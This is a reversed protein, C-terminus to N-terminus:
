RACFLTTELSFGRAPPVSSQAGFDALNPGSVSRPSLRQLHTGPESTGGALGTLRLGSPCAVTSSLSPATLTAVGRKFQQIDGAVFQVACVSYGTVTYNGAFGDVDEKAFAQAATASEGNNDTFLSLDVQGGGNDIKGGAGILLKGPPCQATARDSPASTPLNPHPVIQLGLASPVTACFAFVQFSWTGAIGFQDAAASVKFSDLTATHIPQMETIVAHVGGVTFAGGGLVRQGAPCNASFSKAALNDFPSQVAVVQVSGPPITTASAPAAGVAQGALVAVGMAVASAWTKTSRSHM